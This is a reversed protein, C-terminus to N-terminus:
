LGRRRGDLLANDEKRDLTDFGETFWGYVPALLHYAEDSIRRPRWGKRHWLSAMRPTRACGGFSLKKDLGARAPTPLVRYSRNLYCM